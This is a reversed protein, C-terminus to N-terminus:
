KRPMNLNLNKMIFIFKIDGVEEDLSGHSSQTVDNTEDNVINRMDVLKKTLRDIFKFSSKHINGLKSIKEQLKERHIFYLKVMNNLRYDLNAYDGTIRKNQENYIYHHDQNNTKQSNNTPQHTDSSLNQSQHNHNM